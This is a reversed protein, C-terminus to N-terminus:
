KDNDSRNFWMVNYTTAEYRDPNEIIDNLTLEDRVLPERPEKALGNEYLVTQEKFRSVESENFRRIAAKEENLIRTASQKTLEDAREKAASESTFYGEDIDVEHDHVPYGDMDQYNDNREIYYITM